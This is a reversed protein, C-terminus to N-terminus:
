AFTVRIFYIYICSWSTYPDVSGGQSFAKGSHGEKHIAAGLYQWSALELGDALSSDACYTLTQKTFGSLVTVLHDVEEEVGDLEGEVRHIVTVLSEALEPTVSCGSLTSAVQMAGKTLGEKTLHLVLRAVGEEQAVGLLDCLRLLRSYARQVRGEIEDPESKRAEEIQQFTFSSLSTTAAEKSALNPAIGLCDTEKM